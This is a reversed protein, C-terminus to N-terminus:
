ILSLCLLLLLALVHSNNVSVLTGALTRQERIEIAGCSNSPVVLIWRLEVLVISHEALALILIAHSFLTLCSLTHAALVLAVIVLANVHSTSLLM